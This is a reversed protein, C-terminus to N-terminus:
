KTKKTNQAANISKLLKDPNGVKLIRPKPLKALAPSDFRYVSPEKAFQHYITRYIDYLEKATQTSQAVGISENADLGVESKLLEILANAKEHNYEGQTLDDLCAMVEHLQGSRLRSSLECARAIHMLQDKTLEIRYEADGSQYYENVLDDFEDAM